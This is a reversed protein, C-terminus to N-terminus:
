KFAKKILILFGYKSAIKFISTLWNVPRLFDEFDHKVIKIEEVAIQKELQLKKLDREIEDFTEYPKM